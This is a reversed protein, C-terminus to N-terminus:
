EQSFCVRFGTHHMRNEPYWSGRCGSAFLRASESWNGGRVCRRKHEGESNPAPDTVDGRPLSKVGDMWDACWSTVNGTTDHLGFGNPKYKGVKSTFPEGDDFKVGYSGGYGKDWKKKASEDAVNAYGELSEVKDGTFYLTTEGGRNAYEYEAETLLRIPTKSDKVAWKCFAETDAWTVNVVPHRESQEWGVEKWTYKPNQVNWKGRPGEFGYGGKGDREADTDYKASKAFAAFQGKTVPYKAVWLPKTFTVKHQPKEWAWAEKDSDPSGMLFSGKPVKVFEMEEGGLKVKRITRKRKEGKWEYEEVTEEAVPAKPSPEIAPAKRSLGFLGAGFAVALLAVAFISKRVM